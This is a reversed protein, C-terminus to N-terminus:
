DGGRGAWLGRMATEGDTVVDFLFNKERKVEERQLRSEM